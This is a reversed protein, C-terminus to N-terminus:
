PSSTGIPDVSHGLWLFSADETPFTEVHVFTEVGVTEVTEIVVTFVAVTSITEEVELWFTGTTETTEVWESRSDKLGTTVVSEVSLTIVDDLGLTEVAEFGFSDEIGVLLARVVEGWKTEDSEVCAIGLVWDDEVAESQTELTEVVGASAWTIVVVEVLGTVSDELQGTVLVEVWITEVVEIVVLVLAEVLVTEAVLSLVLTWESSQRERGCLSLTGLLFHKLSANSLSGLNELVSESVSEM